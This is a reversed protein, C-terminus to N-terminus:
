ADNAFRCSRLCVSVYFGRRVRSAIFPFHGPLSERASGRALLLFQKEWIKMHERRAVSRFKLRADNIPPRPPFFYFCSSSFCPVPPFLLPRSAAAVSSRRATVTLRGRRDYKRRSFGRPVFPRYKPAARVDRWCFACSGEGTPGRPIRPPFVKVSHEKRVQGVPLRCLPLFRSM